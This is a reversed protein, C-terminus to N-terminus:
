GEVFVQERDSDFIATNTNRVVFLFVDESSEETGAICGVDFSGAEPKVDRLFVYSQKGALDM